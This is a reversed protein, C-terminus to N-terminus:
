LMLAPFVLDASSTMSEGAAVTDEYNQKYIANKPDLMHAARYEELAGRRDGKQELALGLNFHANENKPNLRLAERYEAIEGDMDGKNGLAIGPTYHTAADGPQLSKALALGRKVLPASRVTLAKTGVAVLASPVQNNEESM